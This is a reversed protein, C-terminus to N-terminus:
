LGLCPTSKGSLIVFTKHLKSNYSDGPRKSEKDGSVLLPLTVMMAPLIWGWKSPCTSCSKCLPALFSCQPVWSIWMTSEQCETAGNSSHNVPHHLVGPRLVTHSCLSWVCPLLSKPGKVLYAVLVQWLSLYPHSFNPISLLPLPHSAATAWLGITTVQGYNAECVMEELNGQLLLPGTGAGAHLLPDTGHRAYFTAVVLTCGWMEEQPFCSESFAGAM